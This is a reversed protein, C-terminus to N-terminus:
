MCLHLTEKPLFQLNPIYFFVQIYMLYIVSFSENFFLICFSLLLKNNHAVKAIFLIWSM